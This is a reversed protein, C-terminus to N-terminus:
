ASLSKSLSQRKELWHKLAKFCMPRSIHFGQAIDCGMDKLLKLIEEDEVGEAVVKYGLSHCMNITTEVIIRSSDKESIDCILARDIKIERAPLQKLYSLSSYGSGFDDVAVVMGEASLKNLATLGFEPDEMIATETLELVLSQKSLSLRELEDKLYRDLDPEMLNKASINVSVSPVFGLMELEKFDELARRVVWRTLERIVGTKEALPIFEDPPIFEGSDNLWRMLAEVGVVENTKLSIKPQYYLTPTNDRLAQRLDTLLTLRRQDYVDQRPSYFSLPPDRRRANELAVHAHRILQTADRGNKPYASVGFAAGAEINLGQYEFPEAIEAMFRNYAKVRASTVEGAVLLGLTDNDCACVWYVTDGSEEITQLGDLKSALQNTRQGILRALSEGHVLGLTKNIEAFRTMRMLVILYTQQPDHRIRDYIAMEFLNRNPLRTVPDHLAMQILQMQAERRERGEKLSRMQAKVKEEREQYLREALAVTLISAEIGSGIQMGYDAWFTNSLIGFKHAMTVVFGTTLTSWALTFYIAPRSGRWWAVPGVVILLAWLPAALFASIRISVGYPLFLSAILNILSIAALVRLATDLRPTITATNIFTRVFLISFLSLTPISLLMAQHQVWPHTTFILQAFFGRLCFFFTLNGLLAMAYFLYTVERLMVFVAFNMLIMVTIVGYYFFHLKTEQNAAEFFAKERWVRLPYQMAGETKTRIYVTRVEGPELPVRLLFNPHDIERPYFSIRDGILQTKELTDGNFLFFGVQDLQPYGVEVVFSDRKDESNHLAFRVWYQSRSYGWNVGGKDIYHWQDAPLEKVQAISLTAEVDEFYELAVDKLQPQGSMDNVPMAQTLSIPFVILLTLFLRTWM